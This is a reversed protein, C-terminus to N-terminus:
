RNVPSLKHCILCQEKPPHGKPLKSHCSTCRKEVEARDEGKTIAEYFHIHKDDNPVSVSKSKDKGVFLVVLLAVIVAIFIYDRKAITM